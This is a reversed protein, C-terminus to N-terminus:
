HQAPALAAGVQDKIAEPVGEMVELKWKQEGVDGSFDAAYHKAGEGAVPRLV